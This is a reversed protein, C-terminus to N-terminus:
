RVVTLEVPMAVAELRPKLLTRYYVDAVRLEELMPKVDRERYAENSFIQVVKGLFDCYTEVEGRVADAIRDVQSTLVDADGLSKRVAAASSITEGGGLMGGLLGGTLGSLAATALVAWGVPGMAAAILAGIGATGVAALAASERDFYDPMSLKFLAWFNEAVRASANPVDRRLAQLLISDLRSAVEKARDALQAQVRSRYVNLIARTTTPISREAAVVAREHVQPMSRKLLLMEEGLALRLQERLTVITESRVAALERFDLLKRLDAVMERYASVEYELRQRQLRLVVDALHARLEPLGAGSETSVYFTSVPRNPLANAVVQQIYARVKALAAPDVQDIRSVVIALRDERFVDSLQILQRVTSFALPQTAPTTILCVDVLDAPHADLLHAGGLEVETGPTDLWAWPPMAAAEPLTVEMYAASPQPSVIWAELDTEPSAERRGGDALMLTASRRAGERVWVPLKTTPAASVPLLPAGLMRNILSSKGSSFPGTVGVVPREIRGLPYRTREVERGFPIAQLLHHRAHALDRAIAAQQRIRDDREM